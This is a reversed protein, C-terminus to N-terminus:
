KKELKKWDHRIIETIKSKNKYKEWLIMITAVMDGGIM